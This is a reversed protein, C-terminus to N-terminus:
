RSARSKVRKKDGERRGRKGAKKGTKVDLNEQVDGDMFKRKMGGQAIATVGLENVVDVKVAGIIVDRLYAEDVPEVLCAVLLGEADNMWEARWEKVHRMRVHNALGERGMFYSGDFKANHGCLVCAALSTLGKKRDKIIVPYDRLFCDTYSKGHISFPQEIWTLPAPSRPPSLSPPPPSGIKRLDKSELDFIAAFQEKLSEEDLQSTRPGHHKLAIFHQNLESRAHRLKVAAEPNERSPASALPKHDTEANEPRDCPLIPRPPSVHSVSAEIASKEAEQLVVGGNSQLGVGGEDVLQAVVREVADERGIAYRKRASDAKEQALREAMGAEELM